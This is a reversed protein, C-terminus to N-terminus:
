LSSLVGAAQEDSLVPTVDLECVDDWQAAFRYVATVDDSELIMYGARGGAVHWRGLIAVGDPAPAGTELFRAVAADRQDMPIEYTLMFQM